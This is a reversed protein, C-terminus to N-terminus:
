ICWPAPQLRRVTLTSFVSAISGGTIPTSVWLSQLSPPQVTQTVSASTGNVSETLTVPTPVTVQGLHLNFTGFAWDAPMSFSAPM